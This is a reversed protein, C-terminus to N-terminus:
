IRNKEGARKVIPTVVAGLVAGFAIHSVLAGILIMPFMKATDEMIMKNMEEMKMKEDMASKENMSNGGMSNSETSGSSMSGGSMGSKETM